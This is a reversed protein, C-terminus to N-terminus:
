WPVAALKSFSPLSKTSRNPFKSYSAHTSPLWSKSQPGATKSLFIPEEFVGIRVAFRVPAGSFTMGHFIASAPPKLIASIPRMM